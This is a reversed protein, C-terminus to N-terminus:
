RNRRGADYEVHTVHPESRFNRAPSAKHMGGALGALLVGITIGSVIKESRSIRRDAGEQSLAAPAIQTSPSGPAIAPVRGRLAKVRM